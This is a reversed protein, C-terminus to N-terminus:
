DRCVQRRWWVIFWVLSLTALGCGISTAVTLSQGFGEPAVCIYTTCITTMFLAPLLTVVFWRGRGALYVTIAWLTFVSLTQNAWAFYRWLADFGDEDVSRMFLVGFTVAFIAIAVGLRKALVSQDIKFIDAVILRASRLATDGTSIPAFVVGLIALAGGVVGLWEGSLFYVVKPTTQAAQDPQTHFLWSAAAAWILAVIGETIMAGFFIGRGQRESQM